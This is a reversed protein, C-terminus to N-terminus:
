EKPIKNLQERLYDLNSIDLDDELYNIINKLMHRAGLNYSRNFLRDYTDQQEKKPANINNIIPLDNSM